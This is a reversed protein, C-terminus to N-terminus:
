KLRKKMKIEGEMILINANKVIIIIELLMM